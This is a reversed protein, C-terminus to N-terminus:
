SLKKRKGKISTVRLLEDIRRFHREERERQEQERQEERAERRKEMEIQQEEFQRFQYDFEKAINEKIEQVMDQQRVQMTDNIMHRLLAQIRMAKERKDEAILQVNEVMQIEKQNGHPIVAIDEMEDPEKIEKQKIEIRIPSEQTEEKNEAKNEQIEAIIDSVKDMQAFETERKMQFNVVKAENKEIPEAEIDKILKKVAKLQLGEEKLKKIKIFRLVDERTYLRHGKANRKIPLDLELEWYRLVHTEVQVEKAAENILYYEKQMM